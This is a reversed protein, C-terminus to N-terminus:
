INLLYLTIMSVRIFYRSLVIWAVFFGYFNHPLFVIALMYWKSGQIFQLRVEM